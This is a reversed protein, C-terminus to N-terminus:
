PRPIARPTAALWATGDAVNAVDGAVVQAGEALGQVIPVWETGDSALAPAGVAVTQSRIRTGDLMLVYPQARDMRVSTSPLALGNSQDLLVRGKAFLGHRLAPHGDLALYVPVTRSGAQVSPNVRAIRAGIASPLGDVTVEARLGVRLRTIDNPTLAAELEFTSLDVIELIRADVGVREGPQAFRQSVIGNIPAALTTDGLSKRALEAGAAAAQQQALASAEGSASSELATPSIFGQEVLAKNNALTRRAIDLQAQASRATQDAQRLRWDFETSDQRVLVQGQRVTEGERVTIERIESAVKAKVFASRAAKVTGSLEVASLLYIRQAKVIDSPTLELAVAKQPGAAEAQKARQSQAIRWGIAAVLAVVLLLSVWLATRSKM